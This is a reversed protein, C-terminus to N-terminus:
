TLNLGCYLQEVLSVGDREDGTIALVLRPPQILLLNPVDLVPQRFHTLQGLAFLRDEARDLRLAFQGVLQGFLNEGGRRGLPEFVQIQRVLRLLLRQGRQGSRATQFQQGTLDELGRRGTGIQVGPGGIEDVRVTLHGGRGIRQEAGTVDKGLLEAFLRFQAPPQALHQLTGTHQHAVPDWWFRLRGDLGRGRRRFSGLRFRVFFWGRIRIGSATECGFRRRRWLRFFWRVALVGLGHLGM